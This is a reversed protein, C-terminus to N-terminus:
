HIDATGFISVLEYSSPLFCPTVVQFLFHHYFLSFFISGKSIDWSCQELNTLSSSLWILHLVQADMAARLQVM